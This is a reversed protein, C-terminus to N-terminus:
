GDGQQIRAKQLKAEMEIQAKTANTLWERTTETSELNIFPLGGQAYIERLLAKALEETNLSLDLLVKEGKKVDISYHILNHALQNISPHLM